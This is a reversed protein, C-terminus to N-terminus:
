QEVREWSGLPAREVWAEIAGAELKSQAQCLAIEKRRMTSSSRLALGARWRWYVRYICEQESM